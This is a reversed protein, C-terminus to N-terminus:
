VFHFCSLPRQLQCVRKCGRDSGRGREGREREGGKGWRERNGKRHCHRIAVRNIDYDSMVCASTKGEYKNIIQVGRAPIM